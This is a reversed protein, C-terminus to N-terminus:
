KQHQITRSCWEYKKVKANAKNPNMTMATVVADEPIVGGQQFEYFICWCSFKFQLKKVSKQDANLEEM